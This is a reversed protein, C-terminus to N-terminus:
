LYIIIFFSSAIDIFITEKGIGKQEMVKTWDRGYTELGYLFNKEEEESYVGSNFGEALPKKPKKVPKEEKEGEEKEVTEDGEKKEKKQPAEKVPKEIAKRKRGRKALLL